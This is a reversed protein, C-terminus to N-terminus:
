AKKIYEAANVLEKMVDVQTKLSVIYDLAEEILCCEEMARGGPILTKLVQTQKKVISKALSSSAKHVNQNMSRRTTRKSRRRRRRRIAKHKIGLIRFSSMTCLHKNFMSPIQSGMLVTKIHTKKDYGDALIARSWATSGQKAAAMAISATQKIVKHKELACINNSDRCCTDLAATWKKIFEQKMIMLPTRM